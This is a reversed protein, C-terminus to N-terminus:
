APARNAGGSASSARRRLEQALRVLFQAKTVGEKKSVKIRGEARWSEKPYHKPEVEIQFGLASAAEKLREATIEGDVALKASIRRGESRPVSRKLYSPYVYFHDPM